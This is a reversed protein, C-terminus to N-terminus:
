ARSDEILKGVEDTMLQACEEKRERLAKAINAIVNAREDPSRLRWQTFAEHSAKVVAAAEADSMYSYTALVQETLPNTTTFQKNSM